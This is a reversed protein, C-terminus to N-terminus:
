AAGRTGFMSGDTYHHVARSVVLDTLNVATILVGWATTIENLERVLDAELGPRDGFLDAWARSACSSCLVGLVNHSLAEANNWLARHFLALDLVRYRCNASVTITRGDSTTVAGSALDLSVENGPWTKVEDVFLWRWHLGPGLPRVILGGRVLM